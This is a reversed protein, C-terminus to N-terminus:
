AKKDPAGKKTALKRAMSISEREMRFGLKLFALQPRQYLMEAFAKKVRVFNGAM